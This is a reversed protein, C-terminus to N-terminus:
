FYTINSIFYTMFFLPFLYGAFCPCFLIFSHFLFYPVVRDLRQLDSIDVGKLCGNTSFWLVTFILLALHFKLQIAASNSIPNM